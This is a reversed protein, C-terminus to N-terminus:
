SRFKIETDSMEEIMAMSEVRIGKNRLEDGGGQFCKEIAIAAGAVSAGSQSVLDVLGKLANGGALFDDVLLVNDNQNLYDKEVVVNYDVGHTFSHVVTSYLNASINSTKNKKAFVAPVKMVAGVLVALAIGSAEVTLIKTIKDNKYLEAIEKAVEYLFECDLQHNLFSGVKLIGGPYVKGDRLIKQEMAKM